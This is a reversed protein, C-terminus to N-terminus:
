KKWKGNVSGLLPQKSKGEMSTVLTVYGFASGYSISMEPHFCAVLAHHSIQLSRAIRLTMAQQQSVRCRWHRSAVAFDCGQIKPTEINNNVLKLNSYKIIQKIYLNNQNHMSIPLKHQRHHKWLLYEPYLSNKKKVEFIKKEWSAQTQLPTFTQLFLLLFFSYYGHNIEEACSSPIQSYAHSHSSRQNHDIPDWEFRPLLSHSAQNRQM